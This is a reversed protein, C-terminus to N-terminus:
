LGLKRSPSQLQALSLQQLSNIITANIIQWQPRIRCHGELSCCGFQDSCETLAIPGEVADIIAAISIAEPQQALRYGGGAGRVSEILGNRALLKLTKSVMPASVRTASALENVNCVTDPAEALRSMLVTAYDSQKSLRLM